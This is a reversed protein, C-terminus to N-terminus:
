SITEIIAEQAHVKFDSCGLKSNLSQWRLATVLPKQKPM